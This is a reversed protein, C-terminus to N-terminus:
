RLKYTMNLAARYFEVHRSGEGELRRDQYFGYDDTEDTFTRMTRLQGLLAVSLRDTVAVNVMPGFTWRSLDDGWLEGGSADFLYMDEEFLLGVMNLRLPMKYGLFYSGYYNWGNRNEGADAEYLWSEDSSASTLARYKAEHSTLFVVHTWEGPVFAGLDFQFAGGARFFWVAGDLPGGTLERDHTGSRENMRLGNGIPINWGSGISGGAFLSLFAIPTLKVEGVANASVPSVEAVAKIQLNNGATLAGTGALVPIKVTEILKLKAEKTTAIVANLDTSFSVAKEEAALPAAAVIAAACFFPAILARLRNQHM